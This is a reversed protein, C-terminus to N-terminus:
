FTKNKQPNKNTIPSMHNERGKDSFYYGGGWNSLELESFQFSPTSNWSESACGGLNIKRPDELNHLREQTRTYSLRTKGPNSYQSEVTQRPQKERHRGPDRSPARNQPQPSKLLIKESPGRASWSNGQGRGTGAPPGAAGPHGRPEALASSHWSILRM